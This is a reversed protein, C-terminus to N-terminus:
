RRGWSYRRNVARQQREHHEKCGACRCESVGPKELYHPVPREKLVVRPHNHSRDLSLLARDIVYDNGQADRFVLATDRRNSQRSLKRIARAAAEPTPADIM